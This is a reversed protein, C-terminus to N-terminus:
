KRDLQEKRKTEKRARKIADKTFRRKDSDLKHAGSENPKRLSELYDLTQNKNLSKMKKERMTPTILPALFHESFSGSPLKRIMKERFERLSEQQLSLQEKQRLQHNYLQQDFGTVNSGFNPRPIETSASAYGM